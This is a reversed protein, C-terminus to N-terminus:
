RNAPSAIDAEDAGDFVAAPLAEGLELPALLFPGAQHVEKPVLELLDVLGIQPGVLVLLKGSETEHFRAGNPTAGEEGEAAAILARQSEVKGQRM